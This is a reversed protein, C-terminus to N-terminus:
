DTTVKFVGHVVDGDLWGSIGVASLPELNDSVEPEDEALRVLWDDDADFNLFMVSQADGEIVKTYADTDGLSGTSTLSEKYADNTGLVAYGDAETVELYPAVDPGALDKVKDLVAQIEAADGKIKIGLPLESPGGNVIADPDIGSGLGIAMGEGMLTELDEPLALGTEEEAQAILDDVDTGEPSSKAMYDILSQAWGEGFGLGFAAVTDDPLGQVMEVGADGLFDKTLEGQYNSYAAEFELGGDDFRVTAAAGDFQELMETLEPPVSETGSPANEVFEGTEPDIEFGDASPMGFMSGMGPMDTLYRSMFDGAEPAAYMSMIGSDGAEGTWKQFDADDALSGKETADVVKQAEAENKGVVLWDGSIVYGGTDGSSDSSDSGEASAGAGCVQLLNDVGDEAKGADTVQVVMVATPTDGGLDAAAMAARSGLWPEVDKAYDLGECEGSKVIEEVIKERLDDDTDLGTQEKFAPFKRLTKIAEIKQGGSPDLDISVYGLTSAPLAEAPQSGTALFSTAAWVAGGGVALVGVLGGVALLRKRNDGAHAERAVPSGASSELFEPGGPNHGSSDPGPPTTNSM